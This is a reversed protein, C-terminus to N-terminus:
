RLQLMASGKTKNNTQRAEGREGEKEPKKESKRCKNESRQTVWFVLSFSEHQKGARAAAEAAVSGRLMCGCCSCTNQWLPRTTVVGVGGKPAAEPLFCSAIANSKYNFSALSSVGTSERRATSKHAVNQQMQLRNTGAGEGKRGRVVRIILCTGLEM